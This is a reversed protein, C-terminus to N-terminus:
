PRLASVAPDCVNVTRATSGAPLMPGLSLRVQVTSREAGWVVIVEPGLSGVGSVKASKANSELSALEVNRHSSSPPPKLAQV